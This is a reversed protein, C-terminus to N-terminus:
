AKALPPFNKYEAVTGAFYGCRFAKSLTTVINFAVFFYMRDPAVLYHRRMKRTGPRLAACRKLHPFANEMPHRARCP